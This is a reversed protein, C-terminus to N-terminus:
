HDGNTRCVNLYRNFRARAHALNKGVMSKNSFNVGAASLHSFKSTRVINKARSYTTNRVLRKACSEALRILHCATLLTQYANFSVM